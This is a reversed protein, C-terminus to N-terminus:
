GKPTRTELDRIMEAIEADRDYPMPAPAPPADELLAWLADRYAREAHDIPRPM